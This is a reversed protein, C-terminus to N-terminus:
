SQTIEQQAPLWCEVDQRAEVLAQQAAVRESPPADKDITAALLPLGSDISRVVEDRTAPRGEAFWEVKDPDGMEILYGTASNGPSKYTRYRGTTWVGACGPNRMIAAEGKTAQATMEDERRVMHPRSLFPCHQASWVACEHHCPPEASTRNIACMPGIVFSLHRGLPDGCVWCRRERIARAFKRPDMARFEPVGNVWEVFWPVPYGRQDLPLRRLRAPLVGLEPRLMPCGTSM